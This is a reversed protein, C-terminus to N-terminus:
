MGASDDEIWKKRDVLYEHMIAIHGATGGFSIWGLKFWFRLAEGFSPRQQHNNVNMDRADNKLVTGWFIGQM